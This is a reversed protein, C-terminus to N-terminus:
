KGGGFLGKAKDLLSSGAGKLTDLGENLAGIGLDSISKGIGKTIAGIVESAIEGTTAGGEAKGLDHLHIEALTASVKKGGLISASVGINGSRVYLDQIVFKKGSKDPSGGSPATSPKETAPKNESKSPESGGVGLSKSFADVNAQIVAVNSGGPGLEYTVVPSEIVVEKVVITDSTLTSTDLTVKIDGLEFASPTKYGEPNGVVLGTLRGEGSTLSVDADKLAVHTGTAKSGVGEVVAKIARGIGGAAVFVVVGVIALVVLIGVIKLIKM